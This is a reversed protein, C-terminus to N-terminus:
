HLEPFDEDSLLTFDFVSQTSSSEKKSINITLLGDETKALLYGGYDEMESLQTQADTIGADALDPDPSLPSLSDRTFAYMGAPLEVTLDM